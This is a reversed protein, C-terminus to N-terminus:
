LGLMLLQHALLQACVQEAVTFGLPRDSGMGVSLARQVAPPIPFGGFQVVLRFLGATFRPNKQSPFEQLFNFCCGYLPMRLGDVLGAVKCKCLVETQGQSNTNSYFFM